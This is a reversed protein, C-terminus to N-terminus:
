SFNSDPPVGEPPGGRVCFFLLESILSAIKAWTWVERIILTNSELYQLGDVQVRVVHPFLLLSDVLLDALSRTM